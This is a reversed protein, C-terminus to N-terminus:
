FGQRDMERDSIVFIEIVGSDVMHSPLMNDIAVISHWNFNRDQTRYCRANDGSMVREGIGQRCLGLSIPTERAGKWNVSLHVEIAM